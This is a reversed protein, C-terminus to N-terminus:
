YIWGSKRAYSRAGFFGSGETQVSSRRDGLCDRHAELSAADDFAVGTILREPITGFALLEAQVDTPDYALLSGADRCPLDDSRAFMGRFAAPTMREERPLSSVRKDAANHRNFAVPLTWLASPSVVLVVWRRTVDLWRYKAFMRDNPHGISLSIADTQGDLRLNDNARYSTGSERLVAVPKLGNVLISRLNTLDTFHLLYPVGIAKAQQQIIFKNLVETSADPDSVASGLISALTTRSTRPRSSAHSQGSTAGSSESEPSIWLPVGAQSSAVASTEEGAVVGASGRSRLSLATAPGGLRQFEEVFYRGLETGAIRRNTEAVYAEREAQLAGIKERIAHALAADYDGPPFSFDPRRYDITREAKGVNADALVGELRQRTQDFIDRTAPDMRRRKEETDLRSEALKLAGDILARERDVDRQLEGIASQVQLRKTIGENITELARNVGSLITPPADAPQIEESKATIPSPTAKAPFPAKGLADKAADGKDTRFQDLWGLVAIIILLVVWFSM